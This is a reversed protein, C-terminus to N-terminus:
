ELLTTKFLSVKGSNIVGLTFNATDSYPVSNNMNTAVCTYVADEESTVGCLELISVSFTLNGETITDQYITIKSGNTLPTQSDGKLWSIDPLESGGYAVCSALLTAGENVDSDAPQVM